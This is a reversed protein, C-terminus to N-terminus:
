HWSRYHETTMSQPTRIKPNKNKGLIEFYDRAGVWTLDPYGQQVLLSKLNEDQRAFQCGISSM